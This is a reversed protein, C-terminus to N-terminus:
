IPLQPMLPALHVRSYKLLIQFMTLVWYTFDETRNQTARTAQSQRLAKRQQKSLPQAETMVSVLALAWSGLNPKESM